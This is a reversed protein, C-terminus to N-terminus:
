IAFFSFVVPKRKAVDCQGAIQKIGEQIAVAVKETNHTQSFYIVISKM